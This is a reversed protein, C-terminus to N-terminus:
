FSRGSMTTIFCSFDDKDDIYKVPMGSSGGEGYIPQGTPTSFYGAGGDYRFVDWWLPDSLSSPVNLTFLLGTSDYVKVTAGSTALTGTGSYHYIKYEYEGEFSVAITVTEPGYSTVDDRDLSINPSADVSYSGRNAYYLHHSTGDIEPTYLHSDLDRPNEGWTLVIRIEGEAATPSISHEYTTTQGGISVVNIYADSFGNQVALLTYSGAEVDTLTFAGDAATTTTHTTVNADETHNIGTYLTITAGVVPTNTTTADILTGTITGSESSDPALLIQDVTNTGSTITFLGRATVYGSLTFSITLDGATIDDSDLTFIGSANTTTSAIVTQGADEASVTVGELATNDSGDYVTGTVIESYVAAPFCCIVASFLLILAITKRDKM